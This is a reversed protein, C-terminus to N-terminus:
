MVSMKKNKVGFNNKILGLLIRINFVYNITSSGFSKNAATEIKGVSCDRPKLSSFLDYEILPLCFTINYSKLLVM